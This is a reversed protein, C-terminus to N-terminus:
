QHTSTSGFYLLQENSTGTSDASLLPWCGQLDLDTSYQEFQWTFFFVQFRSGAPDLGPAAGSPLGSRLMLHIADIRKGMM